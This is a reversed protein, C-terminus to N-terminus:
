FSKLFSVNANIPRLVDLGENRYFQLINNQKVPYEMNAKRYLNQVTFIRYM